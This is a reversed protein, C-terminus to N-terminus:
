FFHRTPNISVLQPVYPPTSDNPNPIDDLLDVIPPYAKVVGYSNKNPIIESWFKTFLEDCTQPCNYVMKFFKWGEKTDVTSESTVAYWIMADDLPLQTLNAFNGSM